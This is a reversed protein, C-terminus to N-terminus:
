RTRYDHPTVELVNVLIINSKTQTYIARWKLNLRISRQDQREGSLSEDHYAPIKRAEDLGAKEVSKIWDFFKVQVNKPAKKLGKLAQRTVFVHTEM